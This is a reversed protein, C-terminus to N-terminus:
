REARKFFGGVGAADIALAVVSDDRQQATIAPAANGAGSVATACFGLLQFPLEAVAGANAGFTDIGHATAHLESQNRLKFDRLAADVCM